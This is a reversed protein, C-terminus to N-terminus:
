TLDEEHFNSPSALNAKQELRALRERTNGNIHLMRSTLSSVYSGMELRITGIDEVADNVGQKNQGVQSSLTDIRSNIMSSTSDVRNGLATLENEMRSTAGGLNACSSETHKVRGGLGNVKNVLKTWMVAVSAIWGAAMVGFIVWDRVEHPDLNM